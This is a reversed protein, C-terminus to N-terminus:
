AKPPAAAPKHAAELYGASQMEVLRSLTRQFEGANRSGAVLDALPVAFSAALKIGRDYLTDVLLIFRKAASPNTRGFQPINDIMLTDYAHALRLYDRAGLPSECLAAFPFRAAGMAARPVVIDRGLSHVSETRGPAGGSLKLWLRDMEADVAPGGGFHYVEEGAFKLRRYDTPGDLSVVEVQTKLLAIFPTFLQRNLGDRYLDDPATNSTAVLTVGGAFLREFLRGLLMANTIDTVQFEDLCLLRTTELLPKTVAPIPDSQHERRWDAIATHVEDMFEDFHVRRKDEIAAAEFFVDMLMTKGRGVAGVLYAGRVPKRKRFLGNPKGLDDAIRDLAAAAKNQLPDASLAGRAVLKALAISVPSPQSSAPVADAMGKM